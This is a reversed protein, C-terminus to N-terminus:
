TKSGVGLYWTFLNGPAAQSWVIFQMLAHHWALLYRIRFCLSQKRASRASWQTNSWAEEECTTTSKPREPIGRMAGSSQQIWRLMPHDLLWRSYAKGHRASIHLWQWDTPYESKRIQWTCSWKSSLVECIALRIKNGGISEMARFMSSHTHVLTSGSRMVNSSVDVDAWRNSTTLTMSNRDVIDNSM